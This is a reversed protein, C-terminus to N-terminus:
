QDRPTPATIKSIFNEFMNYLINVQASVTFNRESFHWQIELSEFNNVRIPGQSGRAMIRIPELAGLIPGMM